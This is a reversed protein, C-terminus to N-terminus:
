DLGREELDEEDLGLFHGIEHLLTVRLQDVLEDHDAAIRSLNRRYLVITAPLTTWPAMGSREPLSHGTFSGLLEAPRAPPDFDGLVEEPPFEDVLIAVSDLYKQLSPHLLSIVEDTIRSVTADDLPVPLPFDVPAEAHAAHYDRLAGDHDGRRERLCARAYHAEAHHPDLRLAANLAHRAEDWRATDFYARGLAAWADVHEPDLEVATTFDATSAADDGSESHAVGLLYHGEADPSQRLAREALRVAKDPDEELAAWAAERLDAASKERKM